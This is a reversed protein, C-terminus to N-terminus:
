GGEKKKRRIKRVSKTYRMEGAKKQNRKQWTLKSIGGVNKEGPSIRYCATGFSDRFLSKNEM